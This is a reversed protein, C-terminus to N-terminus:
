AKHTHHHPNTTHLEHVSAQSNKKTKTRQHSINIILSAIPNAILQGLHTIHTYVNTIQMISCTDWHPTYRCFTGPKEQTPKARPNNGRNNQERQFPDKTTKTPNQMNNNQINIQAFHTFQPMEFTLKQHQVMDLLEKGKFTIEKITDQLSVTWILIIQEFNENARMRRILYKTTVQEQYIGPFNENLKKARITGHDDLYNELTDFQTSRKNEAELELDHQGTTLQTTVHM